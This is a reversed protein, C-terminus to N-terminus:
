LERLLRFGTKDDRAVAPMGVRASCRLEGADSAYSGGRVVKTEPAEADPSWDAAVWERVNGVVHWLGFDNRQTTRDSTPLPADYTTISSYRAQAPLLVDGFPYETTAGARTAYEWEEETPLRYTQGTQVSLWDAYAVADHWSVNVVPMGDDPWPQAPCQVGAGRCYLSYDAWTIEFVSLAFPTPISVDRVPEDEPHDPSGMVFAGAPLVRMHPGNSGDRLTDVCNRRRTQLQAASCGGDKNTVRVTPVAEASNGSAEAAGAGPAEDAVQTEGAGSDASVSPASRAVDKAGPTWGPPVLEVLGLNLALEFLRDLQVEDAPGASFESVEDIKYALSKALPAFWLTGRAVIRDSEPLRKWSDQFEVVSMERWDLRAVFEEVLEQGVDPPRVAGPRAAESQVPIPAQPEVAPRIAASTAPAATEEGLQRTVGFVVAVILVVCALLVYYWRFAPSRRRAPEAKRDDDETQALVERPKTIGDTDAGQHDEQLSDLLLGRRHRYDDFGLRMAYYDRYLRHLQAAIEDSM